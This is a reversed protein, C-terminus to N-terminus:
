ARVLGTVAVRVASPSMAASTSMTTKVRSLMAPAFARDSLLEIATIQFNRTGSSVTTTRTTRPKV